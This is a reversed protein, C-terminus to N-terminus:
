NRNPALSVDIGFTWPQDSVLCGHKEAVGKLQLFARYIGTRGDAVTQELGACEALGNSYRKYHASVWAIANRWVTWLDRPLRDSFVGDALDLRVFVLDPWDMQILSYAKEKDRSARMVVQYVYAASSKWICTPIKPSGPKAVSPHCPPSMSTGNRVPDTSYDCYEAVVLPPPIYQNVEIIIIKPKYRELVLDLLQADCRDIDIKLVDPDLPAGHKSLDDLGTSPSFYRPCEIAIRGQLPGLNNRLSEAYMANGEFVLGDFHRNAYLEYVPDDTKGDNGGINIAYRNMADTGFKAAIADWVAVLPLFVSPGLDNNAQGNRTTLQLPLPPDVACIPYIDDNIRAGSKIDHCIAKRGVEKGEIKKRLVVGDVQDEPGCVARGQESVTGSARTPRLCLPACILDHVFVAHYTFMGESKPHTTFSWALNDSTCSDGRGRKVYPKLRYQSTIVTERSPPAAYKAVFSTFLDSFTSLFTSADAYFTRDSWANVVGPSSVFSAYRVTEGGHTRTLVVDTRARIVTKYSRVLEEGFKALGVSLLAWQNLGELHHGRSAPKTIHLKSLVSSNSLKLVKEIDEDPIYHRDRDVRVTLEHGFAIRERRTLTLAIAGFHVYTAVYVACGATAQALRQSDAARLEGVFLVAVDQSNAFERGLLFKLIWTQLARRM